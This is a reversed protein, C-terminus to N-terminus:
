GKVTVQGVLKAGKQSSLSGATVDAEVQASDSLSLNSCTVSGKLTGSIQAEDATVAGNVDGKIQGKVVINANKAVLDGEIKLDEEIVSDTM